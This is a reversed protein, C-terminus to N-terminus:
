QLVELDTALILQGSCYFFPSEVTKDAIEIKFIKITWLARAIDMHM